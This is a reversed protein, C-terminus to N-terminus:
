PGASLREYSYSGDNRNRPSVSSLMSNVGAGHDWVHAASSYYSGRGAVFRCKGPGTDTDMRHAGYIADDRVVDSSSANSM